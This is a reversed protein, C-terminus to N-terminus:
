KLYVVLWPDIISETDSLDFLSHGQGTFLTFIHIIENDILKQEFNLAHDKSIISDNEGHFIISPVNKLHYVPSADNVNTGTFALIKSYDAITTDNLDYAGSCCIILKVINDEDFGYGYLAANVAGASFGYLAFKNDSIKWEDAKSRIYNIANKVDEMIEIYTTSADTFRYNMSACAYGKVAYNNRYSNFQSKSGQKWYGGHIFLIVPTNYYRDEPLSVDMQNRIGHPGYSLNLYEEANQKSDITVTIKYIKTSNDEATVIYEVVKNYFDNVTVGSIQVISGIKVSKGTATFVATLNSADTGYPINVNIDTGSIAVKTDVSLFDFSTIEKSTNLATNQSGGSEDPKDDATNLSCSLILYLITIFIVVKKM